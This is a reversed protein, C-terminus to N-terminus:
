GAYKLFALLYIGVAIFALALATRKARHRQRRVLEGADDAQM